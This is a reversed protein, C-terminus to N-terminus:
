FPDDTDDPTGDVIDDYFADPQSDSPVSSPKIRKTIKFTRRGQDGTRETESIFINVKRLLPSLRRLCNSVGKGSKPWSQSQKNRDQQEREIDKLLESSTGTWFDRREMFCLLADGFPSAELATESSTNQNRWYSDMFTNPPLKLAQDITSAFTAFDAMRPKKVLRVNPFERLAHSLVSYLGGLLGPLIENYRKWLGDEDLRKDEPIVPLNLVLAREMLDSRTTVEEIGNLIVPRQINIIVEDTDTYLQRASFGGGTAFRCLVDSFEATLGSLNDLVIVHNNTATVLFDRVDKTIGRLPVSSPDILNRIIKTLASKATGQEGHIVLVPYPGRGRAAMLIWGILLPIDESAVNVLESIKLIDGEIPPPLSITGSRRTFMVPSHNLIRWGVTDIEVVRWQPDALDIYVRDGMWATRFYVEREPSDYKSKAEITAIADTIASARAGDGTEKYYQRSLWNHFNKSKIPLIERHDSNDIGAYGNMEADHFLELADCIEILSTVQNKKSLNKEKLSGSTKPPLPPVDSKLWESSIPEASKHLIETFNAGLMASVKDPLDDYGNWKPYHAQIWDVIDGKPPLNPLRLIQIEPPKPLASLIRAVDRSYTLGPEDNDPLLIIKRAGNLAFWDATHVQKCGGCSTVAKFELLHLAYTAKEGEAIFVPVEEEKELFDIGYLPRPAPAAGFDWTDNETKKFYPITEKEEGNPLDYRAVYGLIIDDRSRYEWVFRLHKGKYTEKIGKVKM